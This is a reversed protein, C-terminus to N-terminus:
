SEQSMILSSHVVKIIIHTEAVKLVFPAIIMFCLFDYCFFVVEGPTPGNALGTQGQLYHM